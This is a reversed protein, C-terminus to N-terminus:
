MEGREAFKFTNNVIHVIDTDDWIGAAVKTQSM